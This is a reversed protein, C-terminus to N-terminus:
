YAAISRIVQDLDTSVRKFLEDDRDTLGISLENFREMLQRHNILQPQKDCLKSSNHVCCDITELRDFPYRKRKAM